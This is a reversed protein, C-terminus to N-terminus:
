FIHLCHCYFLPPFYCLVVRASKLEFEDTFWVFQSQMYICSHEPVEIKVGFSSNKIQDFKPIDVTITLNNQQIRLKKSKYANMEFNLWCILM